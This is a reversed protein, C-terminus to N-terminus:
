ETIISKLKEQYGKVYESLKNREETSLSDLLDEIKYLTRVEIGYKEAILDDMGYSLIAVCVVQKGLDKISKFAPEMSKGSALVDDVIAFKHCDGNLGGALIGINDKPEKRALLLSIGLNQAISVAYPSGGTEVGVVCDCDLCLRQLEHSMRSLLHHNKWTTKMNIYIPSYRGPKVEIGPSGLDIALFGSEKIADELLSKLM